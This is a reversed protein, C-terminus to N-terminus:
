IQCPCNVSFSSNNTSTKVRYRDCACINSTFYFTFPFLLLAFTNKPFQSTSKPFHPYSSSSYLFYPFSSSPLLRYYSPNASKGYPVTDFRITCTYMCYSYRVTAFEQSVLQLLIISTGSFMFVTDLSASTEQLNEFIGLDFFGGLVGLQKLTM